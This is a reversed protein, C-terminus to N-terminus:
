LQSVTSLFCSVNLTEVPWVVTVYMYMGRTPVLVAMYFPFTHEKSIKFLVGLGQKTLWQSSVPMSQLPNWGMVALIGSCNDVLQAIALWRPGPRELRFKKLSRDNKLQKLQTYLQLSWNYRQIKRQLEFIHDKAHESTYCLSISDCTTEKSLSCFQTVLFIIM